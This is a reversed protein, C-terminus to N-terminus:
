PISMGCRLIVERTDDEYVRLAISNECRSFVSSFYLVGVLDLTVSTYGQLLVYRSELCLLRIIIIVLALSVTPPESPHRVAGGDCRAARSAAGRITRELCPRSRLRQLAANNGAITAPLSYLEIITIKIIAIIINVATVQAAKKKKKEECAARPPPSRVLLLLSLVHESGSFARRPMEADVKCFGERVRWNLQVNGEDGSM